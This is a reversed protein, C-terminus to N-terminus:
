DARLHDHVATVLGNAQMAEKFALIPRGAELHALASSDMAAIQKAGARASSLESVTGTATKLDQRLLTLERETSSVMKRVAPSIIVSGVVGTGHHLRGPAAKLTTRLGDDAPATAGAAPAGAYYLGVIGGAVLVLLILRKTSM